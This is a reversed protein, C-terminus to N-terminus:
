TSPLVRPYVNCLHPCGVMRQDNELRSGWPNDVDLCKSTERFLAVLDDVKLDM